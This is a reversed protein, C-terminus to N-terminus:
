YNESIILRFSRTRQYLSRTNSRARAMSAMSVFLLSDATRSLPRIKTRHGAELKVLDAETIDVLRLAIRIEKSPDFFNERSLATGSVLLSLAQLLSSKGANNEGIVCGFRSLPLDIERLGKYNEIWLNTLEM